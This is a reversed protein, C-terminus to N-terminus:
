AIPWPLRSLEPALRRLEGRLRPVLPRNRPDRRLTTFLLESLGGLAEHAGLAKLAPPLGDHSLHQGIQAVENDAQFLVRGTLAEFALCGFAYVDATTPSPDVKDPVVGWVEPAGYPGTACGPRIHRGALGFDVLVADQGRRQVVNSPKLDLHGVGVAHMAELGALVDDLVRLARPVDFSRSALVRELMDGEVLEMVLIPKPRASLDFTVFRALNPHSPVAMLASAEDRFLQLFQSESLNRAATASYEPVKLAFREASPDQRDEARTCIFVSGVAGKGLPRQVYFGGLTRSAPLWAPLQIDTVSVTAGASAKEIPRTLLTVVCSGIVRALGMPVRDDLEALWRNVVAESLEADAGELVRSVALSLVRDSSVAAMTGSTRPAGTQGQPMLRARAGATLQALNSVQAELAGPDNGGATSLARLSPAGQVAGLASQLRALVTRVTERRGSADTVLERTLEDLAALQGQVFPRVFHVSEPPLDEPDPRESWQSLFRAYRDFIHVLDPDMAAESLTALEKPDVQVRAVFLLADTVDCAGTRVLADLARAYSASITRRLVSPPDNEFRHSLVHAIKRWRERLRATRPGDEADGLDSDVLHLLARLRRLRLTPHTPAEGPPLPKSERALIWEAMRERVGDLAEEHAKAGDDKTGLRLLGDLTGHELVATDLDRLAALSTRRAMAALRGEGEDDDGMAALADVEAQAAELAAKAAQYAARAGKEAYARLARSLQERVPEEHRSAPDLDRQTERLLAEAGDDGPAPTAKTDLGDTVKKAVRDVLDSRGLEAYLEVV